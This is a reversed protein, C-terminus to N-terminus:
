LNETSRSRSAQSIVPAFGGYRHGGFLNTGREGSICRRIGLGACPKTHQWRTRSSVAKRRTKCALVPLYQGSHVLMSPDAIIRVHQHTEILKIHAHNEPAARAITRCPHRFVALPHAVLARFAPVFLTTAFVHRVFMANIGPRIMSFVSARTTTWRWTAHVDIIPEVM